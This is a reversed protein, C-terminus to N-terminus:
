RRIEKVYRLATEIREAYVVVDAHSEQVQKFFEDMQPYDIRHGLFYGNADMTFAGNKLFMPRNVCERECSGDFRNLFYTQYCARSLTCYSLDGCVAFIHIGMENLVDMRHKQSTEMASVGADQLLEMMRHNLISARNRGMRSWIVAADPINKKMWRVIGIDQVLFYRVHLCDYFYQIRRIVEGFNRTTVYVPTQLIIKKGFDTIKHAIAYLGAEGYEFMHRDCFFDGIIWGDVLDSDLAEATDYGTLGVYVEPTRQETGHEACKKPPAERVDSATVRSVAKPDPMRECVYHLVSEPSRDHDQVSLLAQKMRKVRPLIYRYDVTRGEIKYSFIGIELYQRIVTELSMQKAAIPNARKETGDGCLVYPQRCFVEYNQGENVHPLECIRNDNFCVGGDAVLEYEMDPAARVLDAIEDLFLNTSMVVRCVGLEKLYRITEVNYVGTLTSAHIECDPLYERACQLIGWDAIIVADVRMANLEQLFSCVTELKAEPIGGNIAVHLRVGHSHCMDLALRIEEMSFDASQPRSSMGELGAYVADAGAEILPEIAALEGAPALLEYQYM